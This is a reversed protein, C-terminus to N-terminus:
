NRTNNIAMRAIELAEAQRHNQAALLAGHRISRCNYRLASGNTDLLTSGAEHCILDAAALDWDKASGRAFAAHLQGSAVMAIRYALSPVFPVLDVTRSGHLLKNLNRPGTMRLTSTDDANAVLPDGNCHAGQGAQASYTEGLVPCELVGVVPRNNEVVAISICWQPSGALFGRTGDIPDVVFTRTADLREEDDDTEESLWGYNPRAKLLEKKLFNDVAYDAESVPSQGSKMWVQPDDGFYGMAIEGARKGLDCLLRLDDANVAQAGDAGAELPDADLM